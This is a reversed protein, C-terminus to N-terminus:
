LSNWGLMFVYYTTKAIVGMLLLGACWIGVYALLNKLIM